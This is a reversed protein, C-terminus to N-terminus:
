LQHTSGKRVRAVLGHWSSFWPLKPVEECKEKLRQIELRQDHMVKLYVNICGSLHAVAADLTYNANGLDPNAPDIAMFILSEGDNQM